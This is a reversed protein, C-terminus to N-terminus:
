AQVGMQRLMAAVARLDPLERCLHWRTLLYSGASLEHLTMKHLAALAQLRALEKRESSLADVIATHATIQGQAQGAAGTGPTKVDPASM